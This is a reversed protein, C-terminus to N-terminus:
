RQWFSLEYEMLNEPDNPNWFSVEFSRDPFDHQLKVQHIEKLTDGLLVLKDRSLDPCGVHQLDAIHLHNMVNEVARRDGPTQAEFGRLADVSFGDRLVYGEYEIFRPWFVAAYGVALSFSGTCAVWGDLDIGQGNNWAGLEAAMSDPVEIKM